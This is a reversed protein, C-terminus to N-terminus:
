KKDEDDRLAKARAVKAALDEANRPKQLQQGISEKVNAMSGRTGAGKLNPVIHPIAGPINGRAAKVAAFAAQHLPIVSNSAPRGARKYAEAELIKAMSWNKNAESLQKQLGPNLKIARQQLVDYADRAMEGMLEGLKGGLAREGDALEYFENKLKLIERFGTKGEMRDALQDLKKSFTAYQKAFSPDLSETFIRENLNKLQKELQEKTKADKEFRLTQTKEAQLKMNQLRETLAKEQNQLKQIEGYIDSKPKNLRLNLKDLTEQKVKIADEIKLIDEDTAVDKLSKELSSLEREKIRIKAALAEDPKIKTAVQELKAIEDRVDTRKQAANKVSQVTPAPLEYTSKGLNDIRNQVSDVQEQLPSIDASTRKGGATRQKEIFSKKMDDIVSSVSLNKAEPIDDLSTYIDDLVASKKAVLSDAKEVINDASNGIRPVLDNDEAMKYVDDVTYGSRIGKIPAGFKEVAKATEKSLVGSLTKKVAKAGSVLSDGVVDNLAGIAKFGSGLAGGVKFAQITDTKVQELPKGEMLGQAATDVSAQVATKGGSGVIKAPTILKSLFASDKVMKAVNGAVASNKALGGLKNLIAGGLSVPSIINGVLEGVTEMASPDHKAQEPTKGGLRDAAYEIGTTAGMTLGAAVPKTVDSVMKNFRGLPGAYLPDEAPEAPTAAADPTDVPVDEWDDVPVDEWDNVQDPAVQAQQKLQTNSNAM